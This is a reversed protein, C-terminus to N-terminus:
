QSSTKDADSLQALSLTVVFTIVCENVHSRVNARAVRVGVFAVATCAIVLIM